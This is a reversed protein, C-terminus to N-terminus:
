VDSQYRLAANITITATPECPSVQGEDPRSRKTCVGSPLHSEPGVSPCSPGEQGPRGDRGPVPDGCLLGVCVVCM